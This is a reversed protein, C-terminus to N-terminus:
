PMLTFVAHANKANLACVNMYSIFPCSDVFSPKLHFCAHLCAGTACTGLIQNGGDRRNGVAEHVLHALDDDPLVLVQATDRHTNEGVAVHQELIERTQCLRQEGVGKCSGEAALKLTNM